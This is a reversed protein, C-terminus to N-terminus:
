TNYFEKRFADETNLYVLFSASGEIYVAELRRNVKKWQEDASRM